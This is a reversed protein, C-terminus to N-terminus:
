KKGQEIMLDQMRETIAELPRLRETLVAMSGKLTTMTVELDHFDKRSPMQLHALELASIRSDHRNLTVQHEDLKRANNRGGAAFLNWLTLGFTLLQSLAIVWVVFPSINLVESEM